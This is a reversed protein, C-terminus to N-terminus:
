VPRSARVIQGDIIRVHVALLKRGKPRQGGIFHTWGMSQGYDGQEAIYGVVFNYPRLTNTDLLQITDGVQIDGPHNSPVLELYAQETTTLTTTMNEAGKTTTTEM